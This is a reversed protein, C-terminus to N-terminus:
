FILNGPEWLIDNEKWLKRSTNDSYIFYKMNTLKPEWVGLM